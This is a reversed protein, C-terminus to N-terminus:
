NIQLSSIPFSNAQIGIANIKTWSIPYSVDAIAPNKILNPHPPLPIGPFASSPGLSPRVLMISWSFFKGVSLVSLYNVNVEFHLCAVDPM